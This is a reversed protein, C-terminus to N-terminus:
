NVFVKPSGKVSHDTVPGYTASFTATTGFSTCTAKSSGTSFKFKQNSFSIVNGTNSAKGSISAAIYTCTLTNTASLKVKATLSIPKSKSRGSIKVPNGKAAGVSANYPLNNAAIAISFTLGTIACKGLKSATVSETAKANAGVAPNSTVKGTFAGTGCKVKTTGISFTATTKKALGSTLVAGKSVATGGVKRITLVHAVAADAPVMPAAILLASTAAAVMYLYKRM